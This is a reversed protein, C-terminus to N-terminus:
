GLFDQLQTYLLKSKRAITSAYVQVPTCHKVLVLKHTEYKHKSHQTICVLSWTYIAVSERPAIQTPYFCCTHAKRESVEGALALTNYTSFVYAEETINYQQKYKDKLPKLVAYNKRTDRM